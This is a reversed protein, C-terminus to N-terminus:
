LHLDQTRHDLRPGSIEATSPTAPARRLSGSSAMPVVCVEAAQITV